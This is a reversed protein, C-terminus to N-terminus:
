YSKVSRTRKGGFVKGGAKVPNGKPMKTRRTKTVPGASSDDKIIKKGKCDM